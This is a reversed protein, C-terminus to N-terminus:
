RLQAKFPGNTQLLVGQANALDIYVNYCGVTFPPSPTKWNFQWTSSSSKYNFNTNGPKATDIFPTGTQTGNQCSTLRFIRVSPVLSGTDILTGSLTYQWSMPVVSGLNTNNPIGPGIFGLTSFVVTVTFTKTSTNGVADRATCTVATSGLSFTSGSPPTCVVTAASVADIATPTAYTVVATGATNTTNVTVNPAAGIVPPTTDRVTISFSTSGTNGSLDSATCNVATAGLPFTSGSPPSCAVSTVGVADSALPLPFSVAAGAPSTAEVTLDAPKTLTPGTVDKVIVKFTATATNGEADKATCTVTTSGVQFSSGSEPSCTLSTVGVADTATPATYTVTASNATSPANVTIDSTSGFVPPTVDKVIVNFTATSTNGEADKATCTVTTSGIQFTSGSPPSCVLSTVGTNDTAAATFNVTASTGNADANVTVDPTAGFVPPTVDKPVDSTCFQTPDTTNCVPPAVDPDNEHGTNKAQASIVVGTADPNFNATGSIRLTVLLTEGPEAPVSVTPQVNPPSVTNAIVQNVAVQVPTCNQSTTVKSVRRVLLQYPKPPTASFLPVIQLGSTTNGNMTVSWTVESIASNEFDPNEFDPNEYDPNEIDPYQITVNEFDPNEYDPNEIDPFALTYNEFDPNEIDPNGIISAFTKNEIDPNHLEVQKLSFNEFDPNEFDPNEIDPSLPNSNLVVTAADGGAIPSCTAPDSESVQVTIAPPQPSSSTVFITKVAGSRRPVTVCADIVAPASAPLYPALPLQSFSARGSTGNPPADGPQNSIHVKYTKTQATTNRVWVLYSRQITGTPKPASPVTVILGPKISTGFVEQNRTNSLPSSPSCAPYAMTPDNVGDSPAMLTPPTYGTPEILDTVTNGRLLRNDGWAVFFTPKAGTPSTNPVWFHTTPDLKLQKAAVAIYDGLFPTRGQQFIRSNAFNNELQTVVPGPNTGLFGPPAVGIAYSSVKVSPTFELKSGNWSGQAARVDITHRRVKGNADLYDNIFPLGGVLPGQIPTLDDRTDYWAVQVVGESATASPVVQYGVPVNDVFAPANWASGNKSSSVKIRPLASSALREAWFVHFATGDAALWPLSNTRFTVNSSPQDFKTISAVTNLSWKVGRNTSVSAMVADTSNSDGFRRWTAVFTNGVSALSVGQNVNVTQTIKTGPTDWTMGCDASKILWIATNASTDSGLFIAFAVSVEFKPVTRTAVTGDARKFPIDCTGSLLNIMLAPKDIFRGSTGTTIVHTAENAPEFPYGDEKNMEVWRQFFIGGLANDGRNGAIFLYGMGGPFAAVSPDAGFALNLSPSDGKFGPILRSVWTDRNRSMMAGLWADGLVADTRDVGRYDNAGCLVAGSEPSIACSPENQQKLGVDPLKGGCYPATTCATPQPTPGVLTVNRGPVGQARAFPAISTCLVAIAAVRVALRTRGSAPLLV